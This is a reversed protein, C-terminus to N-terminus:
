QFSFVISNLKQKSELIVNSIDVSVVEYIYIYEIRMLLYNYVFIGINTYIYRNNLYYKSNSKLNKKPVM